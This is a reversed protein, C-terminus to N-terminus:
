LLFGPIYKPYLQIDCNFFGTLKVCEPSHPTNLAKCMKASIFVHEM